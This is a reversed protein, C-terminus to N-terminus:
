EDIQFFGPPPSNGSGMEDTNSDMSSDPVSSNMKEVFYERRQRRSSLGESTETLEAPEAELPGAAPQAIIRTYIVTYLGQHKDYKGLENDLNYVNEHTQESLDHGHVFKLQCGNLQQPRSDQLMYYSRNWMIFELPSNQESIDRKGLVYPSYLAHILNAQAYLQFKSNIQDITETLESASKDNFAVRMKGALSKITNLGIGAHSYIFLETKDENISYSIARLSSKYANVLLLMEDKSVFGRDLLNQLNFMSVAHERALIRPRFDLQKKDAKIFEVSHNSLLIEVDVQNKKLKELIKLVFYDNSGRDALEDGILRVRSGTNKFEIKALISNFTALDEATLEEKSYCIGMSMLYKTETIQYIRVLEQYDAKDINTAIGHKILLFLLKMSNSHLDGITIEAGKIALHEMDVAPLTYIDLQESIVNFPM